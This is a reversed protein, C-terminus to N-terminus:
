SSGEPELEYQAEGVVLVIQRREHRLREVEGQFGRGL